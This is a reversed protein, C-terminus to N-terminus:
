SVGRGQHVHRCPNGNNGMFKGSQSGRHCQASVEAFRSFENRNISDTKRRSKSIQGKRCSTRWVQSNPCPQARCLDCKCCLHSVCGASRFDKPIPDPCQNRLHICQASQNSCQSRKLRLFPQRHRRADVLRTKSMLYPCVRCRPPESNMSPARWRSKLRSRTSM